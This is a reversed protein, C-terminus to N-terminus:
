RLAQGLFEVVRKAAARQYALNDFGSASDDRGLGAQSFARHGAGATLTCKARPQAACVVSGHYRPNLVGDAASNEVELPVDMAALSDPDFMVAVPVAVVAARVRTDKTVPAEAPPATRRAGGMSCFAADDEHGPGSPGCHAAVRGLELRGGALALATTGGASHGIVAIRQADIAPAWAPDALLTDLLRSVQAARESFYTPSGQLSSDDQNDHPHRLAVVLYGHEALAQALWAQAWESGGAGHSMVVLPTRQAPLPAGPAVTMALPGFRMPQAQATTPYWAAAHVAEASDASGPLDLRRLGVQAQVGAAGTVLALMLILRHTLHM